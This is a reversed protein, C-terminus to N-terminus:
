AAEILSVYVTVAALTAYVQTLMTRLVALLYLSVVIVACEDKRTSFSRPENKLFPDRCSRKVISRSRSGAVM